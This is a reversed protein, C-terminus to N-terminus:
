PQKEDSLYDLEDNLVKSSNGIEKIETLVKNTKEELLGKTNVYNDNWIKLIDLWNSINDINNRFHLNFSTKDTKENLDKLEKIFEEFPPLDNKNITHKVSNINDLLESIVESISSNSSSINKNHFRIRRYCDTIDKEVGNNKAYEINYALKSKEVEKEYRRIDNDDKAQLRNYESEDIAKLKRRRNKEQWVEYQSRIWPVAIVTVLAMGLPYWYNIWDDSFNTNIIDIREEITHDKDFLMIFVNRWNFALWYLIFPTFIPNSKDNDGFIIRFPDLVKDTM